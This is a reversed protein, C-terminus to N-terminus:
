QIILKCKGKGNVGNINFFYIGTGINNFEKLNIQFSSKNVKIKKSFIQKGLIDNLVCLFIGGSQEMNLKVNIIGDTDIPNPYIETKISDFDNFGLSNESIEIWNINFGADKILMRLVHEGEELQITTLVTTWNQWGGTNPINVSTKLENNILFDISGTNTGAVRVNVNYNGAENVKIKYEAWDGNDTWGINMFGDIDETLQTFLGSMLYYEETEIRSPIEFKLNPDYIPIDMYLQGLETLTGDAGYLDIFPYSTQNSERRGIFWAYRYVDPDRELFNVTGALYEKQDEIETVSSDWAAFETVWIPKNYKRADEIYDVISNGGGYWHLAIHDVRCDTCADFFDDLYTFPNSYTVGNESVCNGCYNIAPGVITLNNDTAITQLAPWRNAAESPTMNAQDMFNPENFGLVYKVNSDQSVWNDVNQIGNASWAMSAFDINYNQYTSRIDADPEAAWNYWWSINESFIQIDMVSHYGYGVGRKYSKNQSYSSKIIILLVFLLLVKKM